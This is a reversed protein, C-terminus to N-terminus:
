EVEPKVWQKVLPQHIVPNFEYFEYTALGNLQYPDNKFFAIMEELTEARGVAIGDTRPNRPGSMLLLGTQYGTQLFARHFPLVEDIREIPVIYHVFVIFHKM